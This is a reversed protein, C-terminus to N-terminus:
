ENLCNKARNRISQGSILYASQRSGTTLLSTKKSSETGCGTSLRTTGITVVWAESGKCAPSQLQNLEETDPEEGEEVEYDAWSNTRIEMTLTATYERIIKM